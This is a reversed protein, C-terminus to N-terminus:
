GHAQEEEELLKYIEPREIKAVERIPDGPEFGCVARYDCYECTLYDEALVPTAGIGGGTLSEAMKVGMEKVKRSLRGM